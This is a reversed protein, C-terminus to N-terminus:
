SYAFTIISSVSFWHIKDVNRELISIANPNSSLGTWNIANHTVPDINSLNVHDKLLETIRNYYIDEM